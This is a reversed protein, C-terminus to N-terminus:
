ARRSSPMSCHMEPRLFCPTMDMRKVSHRRWAVSSIVSKRVRMRHQMVFTKHPWPKAERIWSQVYLKLVRKLTLRTVRRSLSWEQRARGKLHGALQILLEDKTWGNWKAARALTPLWDDLNNEMDEGSFMEVPPARGRQQYSGRTLTEGSEEDSCETLEKPPLEKSPTLQKSRTLRAKLQEVEKDKASLAGDFEALQTCNLSWLKRYRLKAAELEM